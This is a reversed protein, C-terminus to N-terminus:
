RPTAALTRLKRIYTLDRNAPIEKSIADIIERFEEPYRERNEIWWNKGFTNGLVQNSIARAIIARDDKFLGAQILYEERYLIDMLSAVYTDLAIIDGDTLDGPAAIATVYASRLPENLLELHTDTIYVVTGSGLESRALHRGQNLEFILVILGLM